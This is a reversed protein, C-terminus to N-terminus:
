LTIETDLARWAFSKLPEGAEIDQSVDKGVTFQRIGDPAASTVYFVLNSELPLPFRFYVNFSSRSNVCFLSYPVFAELEVGGKKLRPQVCGESVM